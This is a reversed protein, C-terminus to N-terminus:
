KYDERKEEGEFVTVFKSTKDSNIHQTGQKAVFISFKDCFM